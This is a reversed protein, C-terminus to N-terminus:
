KIVRIIDVGEFQISGVTGTVHVPVQRGEPLVAIVDGRLFKVTLEEGHGGRSIRHPWAEAPVTGELRISAIDVDAARYGHPLEIEVKVWTGQDKGNLTEPEFEIEAKIATVPMHTTFTAMNMWQGYRDGDFARARWQYVTNDALPSAPTWSTIGSGNGPISGSSAVPTAATYIEFEYTLSDSDPDVANTVALTPTLTAVRSGDAPASLTPPGPADNATNIMFSAFPMWGSSLSGDFARARWYYTQNETLAVPVTWGTVSATEAVGGSQVVLDTLAADAYVEFEYTLSDRDADSANYVSLTPSFLNVGGGSSPNALVPITPPDNATNAFFTVVASWPSDATGDGAKVRLYYRTNDLLGNLHWVTSGQGEVVGGSRIVAPSDFTRVTDAEFSYTLVPSDPDIANTAVVDTALAAVTSGMAPTVIVPTSPAENTSNVFFRSTASWPGEMLWDDAQARWYYWGNEQLNVPPTWSTSGAGATVGKTSAIIQIFDPDLAVDYNYILDLSDPDSANSVTLQPTLVPVATGDAPGAITPATPPDNATNVRFSAPVTWPGYLKGDYARARWYYTLNETLPTPVLLSTIGATEAVMGSTVLNALGSDAYIELEYTLKDDNPDSANSVSLMPTFTTVDAGNAPAALAPASPAGEVRFYSGALTEEVGDIGARLVVLYDKASYGQTDIRGTATFSAGMAIAAQGPLTNYVVQDALNVTRVSLAINSLDVNGSNTVQYSVTVPDGTLLSQKDLSLTGKLLATPRTTSAIVLNCTAKAVVVGTADLVQLTVLYAGAPISGANWYKNITVTQGANIIPVAATASYLAQGQGNTVTILTSLNERMSAASLTATLAVAENPNYSAKDTVIRGSVTGDTPTTLYAVSKTLTQNLDGSLVATYTATGAIQRAYQLLRTEGAPIAVEQSAVVGGGDDTLLVGTTAAVRGANNLSVTISFPSSGATDPATLTATVQPSSVEYQDVADALTASNQTVLGRLGYIGDSGAITTFSFPQSGSAPLDFTSSYLTGAAGAAGQVSLALGAAATGSLNKVEGTITVTEGPQYIKRDPSLLLQLNGEEVYFPYEASAVTQGTTSTLTGQLYFKGTLGLTGIISTLDTVAGQTLNAPLDTQWLVQGAEAEYTVTVDHLLPTVNTNTTALTAEIEIWRAAPSTVPSGSSTLYDSWIATALGGDTEASRTRFKISTGTPLTSAHLLKGWRTTSSGSDTRLILTGSAAYIGKNIYYSDLDTQITPMNAYSYVEFEMLMPLTSIGVRSHTNIWKTGDWYDCYGINGTRTLRFMGKNDNYTIDSSPVFVNNISSMGFLGKGSSRSLVDSFIVLYTGSNGAHMSYQGYSVGSPLALFNKFNAVASYDGEIGAKHVIGNQPYTVNSFQHFAGSSEIGNAGFARWRDENFVGDDFNDNLPLLRVSDVTQKETKIRGSNVKFNDFATNAGPYSPDRYIGMGVTCPATFAPSTARNFEVWSTGGWFYVVAINGTRTIRFKGSPASVGNSVYALSVGNITFQSQYGPAAYNAIGAYTNNGCGVNFGAGTWQTSNNSMFDVQIDFDGELLWKSTVTSSVTAQMTDLILKGAQFSVTGGTWWKNTDISTGEFDDDPIIWDNVGYTDVGSRVGTQFDAQTTWSKMRQVGPGTTVQLHLNGGDLATGANTMTALGTISESLLYEQKGTQVQLTGLVGNITIPRLAAEDKGTQLDKYQVAVTYTGTVAGAPITLILPLTGGATVTATGSTAAIQVSKADFLTIRYQVQTDVGGTNAIIPQINDGATFSAAFPPLSLSSTPIALYAIKSATAGGPLGVTVKAGHQGATLTDPLPIHYILASGDVNGALLTKTESFGADPVAVTVPLGAGAADLNFRGTNALSVTMTATGRIRLSTTDFLPTIGVSNVLPLDVPQGAKTEDSQVYTLTYTGFKLMPLILLMKISANQGPILSFPQTVTAAVQGDPDKMTVTLQGANAALTGTNNLAFSVTNGGTAFTAPLTPTVQIQSVSVNFFRYVNGLMMGAQDYAETLMTYRGWQANGPLAYSLVQDAASDAAVNLNRSTEYVTTGSPDTIRVYLSVATDLVNQSRLNIAMGVTEGLWYEGKDTQVALNFWGPLMLSLAPNFVLIEGPELVSTIRANTFEPNNRATATVTVAGPAVDNLAYTGDAATITQLSGTGTMEITVGDFPVDAGYKQAQGQIRASSATISLPVTGAQSTLDATIATTLTRSSYGDHSITFQRVGQPVEALTFLGASDTTATLAPDTTSVVTTGALPQSTVADVVKGTLTGKTAIPALAVDMTQLWPSAGITYSKGIYGPATTKISYQGPTPIDSIAYTGSSDTRGTFNTGAITIEAGPIPLGSKTDTVKGTLTMLFSMELRITGLDSTGGPFIVVRFTHSAFGHMGVVVQYTGPQLNAITFYGGGEPEVAVPTGGSVIVQVGTEEPLHGIPLGWYSDVVRGVLTGTTVQSATTSLRPFFSLTTRAYVTGQATATQYGSKTATITVVGPTVYAVSFTGDAGTTTSGSWAGSIAIVVDALPKGTPDTVTGAITGTSYSSIMPITGLNVTTDAVSTGTASAPAYGALSFTVKQPGPPVDSLTFNGLADTTASFLSSGEVTVTVGSVRQLTISDQVTGIFKGGAPPAPPPSPKNESLYLAKLALATSYPDDNWSGNAAQNATLYNVANGLVTADTSVAALSAFALATEYVTSPSSGFGGDPNQHALLFTTARSVATAIPTMQPFQQLTASVVATIFVNSEDGKYFGWGGDPNQSATLFALAPNIITSDPHNASKLAQLALSTDLINTEYGADGGWGGKLSDASPILATVDSLGLAHLREAIYDVSLPAQAQLWSVGTTYPTGATQNLLKLTELVSVTAATTEVQASGIQWTGDPNQSSSLYSLGTSIQPLQAHSVSTYLLCIVALLLRMMQRLM